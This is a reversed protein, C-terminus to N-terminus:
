KALVVAYNLLRVPLAECPKVQRKRQGWEAAVDGEDVSAM